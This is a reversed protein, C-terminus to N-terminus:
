GEEAEDGEDGEKGQISQLFSYLTFLLDLSNGIILFSKFFPYLSSVQLSRFSHGVFQWHHFIIQLVNGIIPSPGLSKKANGIIKSPWTASIDKMAKMAKMAKM